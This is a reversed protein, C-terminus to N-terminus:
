KKLAERITVPIKAQKLQLFFDVLMSQAKRFVLTTAGIIVFVFLDSPYCRTV